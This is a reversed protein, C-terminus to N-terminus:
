PRIDGGTSEGSPKPLNTTRKPAQSLIAVGKIDKAGGIAGAERILAAKMKAEDISVFNKASTFPTRHAARVLADRFYPEKARWATANATATLLIRVTVFVYNILQGDPTVIPLAVPALDVYQGVGENTKDKKEAAEAACALLVAPAAAILARRLM